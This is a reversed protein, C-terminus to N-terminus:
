RYAILYHFDEGFRMWGDDVGGFVEGRREEMAGGSEVWGMGEWRSILLSSLGM